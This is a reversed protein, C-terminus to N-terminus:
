CGEQKELKGPRSRALWSRDTYAQLAGDENKVTVEQVERGEIDVVLQQPRCPGRVEDLLATWVHVHM